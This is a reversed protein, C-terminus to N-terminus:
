RPMAGAPMAPGPRSPLGPSDGPGPPGMPGHPAARPRRGCAGVMGDRPPGARSTFLYFLTLGDPRM